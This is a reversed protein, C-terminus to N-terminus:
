SGAMASGPSTSPSRPGGSISRATATSTGPWPAPPGPSRGRGTVRALDGRGNLVATVAGVSGSDFATAQTAISLLDDIAVEGGLLGQDRGGDYTPVATIRANHLPLEYKVGFALVPLVAEFPRGSLVGGVSARARSTKVETATNRRTDAPRNSCASM